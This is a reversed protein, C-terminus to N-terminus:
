VSTSAKSVSPPNVETSVSLDDEYSIRARSAHASTHGVHAPGHHSEADPPFYFRNKIESTVEAQFRHGLYTGWFQNFRFLLIGGFERRLQGERAAQRSDAIVTRVTLTAFDLISFRLGPEISRLAMAERRYRNRVRGWSEDHVHIVEAESAYSIQIGSRKLEKSWAIDELGTLTEDYPRTQWLSRRIACNANNCFYSSQRHASQNPFWKAFIQRESFKTIENGRQMGYVLGVAADDFPEIMRELWDIRTPYVHASAFVLIDGHAAECGVNLSRGFSFEAKPIPVIRAGYSQAIPVTDDTSGSDVLIVEFDQRSQLALGAFLRGIFREENYARIVVSIKPRSGSVQHSDSM